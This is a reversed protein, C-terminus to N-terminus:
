RAQGRPHDPAPRRDEPGRPPVASPHAGADAGPHATTRPHRHSPERRGPRPAGMGGAPRRARRRPARRAVVPRLLSAVRRGEDPRAARHALRVPQGQDRLRPTDPTARRDSAPGRPHRLRRREARRPPRGRQLHGPSPLGRRPRRSEVRRGDRPWGRPRARGRRLTARRHVAARLLLPRAPRGAPRARHASGACATGGSPVRRERRVRRATSAPSGPPAPSRTM